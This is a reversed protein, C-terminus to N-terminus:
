SERMEGGGLGSDFRRHSPGGKDGRGPGKGCTKGAEKADFQSCNPCGTCKRKVMKSGDCSQCDKTTRFCCDTCEFFRKGGLCPSLPMKPEDNTPDKSRSTTPEQDGEQEQEQQRKANTGQTDNTENNSPDTADDKDPSPSTSNPAGM